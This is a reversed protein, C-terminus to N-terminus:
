RRAEPGGPIPQQPSPTAPITLPRGGDSGFLSPNCEVFGTDIRSRERMSEATATGVAVGDCSPRGREVSTQFGACIGLIRSDNAHATPIWPGSALLTWISQQVLSETAASLALSSDRARGNLNAGQKGKPNIKQTGGAPSANKIGRSEQLKEIVAAIGHLNEFYYRRGQPSLRRLEEYNLLRAGSGDKAVAASRVSAPDRGGARSPQWPQTPNQLQAFLELFSTNEFEPTIQQQWSKGRHQGSINVRLNPGSGEARMSASQGKLQLFLEFASAEAKAERVQVTGIKLHGQDRLFAQLEQWESDSVLNRGSRILDAITLDDRHLQFQSSFDQWLKRQAKAVEAASPNQAAGVPSAVLCFSLTWCLLKKLM